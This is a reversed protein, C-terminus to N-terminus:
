TSHERLNIIEQKEKSAHQVVFVLAKCCYTLSCMYNPTQDGRQSKGKLITETKAM